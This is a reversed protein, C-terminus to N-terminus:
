SIGFIRQWSLEIEPPKASCVVVNNVRWRLLDKGSKGIIQTDM